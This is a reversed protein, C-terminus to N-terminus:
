AEKEGSDTNKGPNTFSFINGEPKEKYQEYESIELGLSLTKLVKNTSIDIVDEARYYTSLPLDIMNSIEEMLNSTSINTQPNGIGQFRDIDWGDYDGLKVIHNQKPFYYDTGGLRLHWYDYNSLNVGNIEEGESITKVFSNHDKLADACKIRFLLEFINVIIVSLMEDFKTLSQKFKLTRVDGDVLEMIQVNTGNGAINYYRGNGGYKDNYKDTYREMYEMESLPPTYPFYIDQIEKSSIKEGMEEITYVPIFFLYKAYEPDDIYKRLTMIGGGTWPHCAYVEYLKTLGIGLPFDQLLSLKEEVVQHLEKKTIKYAKSIGDKNDTVKLVIGHGGTGLITEFSSNFREEIFEIMQKTNKSERTSGGFSYYNIKYRVM